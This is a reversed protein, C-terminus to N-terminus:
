FIAAALNNLKRLLICTLENHFNFNFSFKAEVYDLFRSPLHALVYTYHM